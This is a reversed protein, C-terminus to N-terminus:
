YVLQRGKEAAYRRTYVVPRSDVSSPLQAYCQIFM